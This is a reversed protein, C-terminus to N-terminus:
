SLLEEVCRMFDEGREIYGSYMDFSACAPSLLVNDGSQALHAAEIVAARMDDVFSVAVVDGVTDAIKHADRGLLVLARAHDAAANRLPSFDADKGEGGAILVTKGPLGQLAAVAAGVNTGKSDNYWNVGGHECLWQSRHPLGAFTKLASLMADQPLAIAEGLALAALANALNHRGRIRLAAESMLLTDGKCLWVEGQLERIGYQDAEPVGLGFSIVVNGHMMAMVHADDRNIVATHAHEYIHAKAHAYDRIDTYRDMHDESVNLVVAAAPQLSSTTELQFSSLELVYLDPESDQLLDLAPTGINGGVRVDKGAQEAMEGLLSTVTSKGNSGTIAVVPAHAARAFLEIDGIVEIGQQMAAQIAAHRVPVGPSVILRTAQTFVAVDFEGSSVQTDAAFSKLVQLGPPIDRSDAVVFSEGCASLYRAVSLGTKGLGVIVSREAKNQTM